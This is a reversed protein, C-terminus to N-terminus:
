YGVRRVEGGNLTADLLSQNYREVDENSRKPLEPFDKHRNTTPKPISGDANVQVIYTTDYWRCRNNLCRIVNIKSGQPGPRSSETNGLEECRPCRRAEDFTTDSM